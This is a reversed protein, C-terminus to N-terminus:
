IIIMLVDYDHAQRVWVTLLSVDARRPQYTKKVVFQTTGRAEEGKIFDNLRDAPIVFKRFKTDGHRGEVSVIDKCNIDFPGPPVASVPVSLM